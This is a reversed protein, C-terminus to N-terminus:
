GGSSTGPVSVPVSMTGPAPTMEGFYAYAVLAAAALAVLALIIKIRLM